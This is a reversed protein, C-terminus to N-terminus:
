MIRAALAEIFFVRRTDGMQVRSRVGCREEVRLRFVVGGGEELKVVGSEKENNKLSSDSVM